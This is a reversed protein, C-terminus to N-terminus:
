TLSLYPFFIELVEEQSLELSTTLKEVESISYDGIALRRYVTAVSSEIIEALEEKSIQKDAIKSNLLKVNM